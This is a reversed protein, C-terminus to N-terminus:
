VGAKNNLKLLVDTITDIVESEMDTYLPLCVIRHSIDTSVRCIDHPMYSIENLSPYFYRRPYIDHKKLEAMAELLTTEDKFILPYYAYNYETQEPILPREFDNKLRSDYIETVRKRESIIHDIYKLNALGMAAHFESNKANIGLCIYDDGIQGFHVAKEFRDYLEKDMTAVAGGEVTHYLKTAHFSLTSIDGYHLISEGKYKVNFAHAADYIIKLGNKKAIRDLAEVDCPIGFVHVAMIAKTDPTIKEEVSKPDICLTEKDIDAFVPKCHQWLLSSSTAVYTFPTTIVEAGDLDLANIALMLAVTGNSVYELYETDLFNRLRNNLEVVNQGKNTLQTSKWVGELYKQYEEMPPLFSKTVNVRSM